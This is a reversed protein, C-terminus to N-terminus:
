RFLSSLIGCNVSLAFFGNMEPRIQQVDESADQM